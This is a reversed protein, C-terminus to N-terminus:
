SRLLESQQRVCQALQGVHRSNEPERVHALLIGADGVDRELDAREFGGFATRTVCRIADARDIFARREGSMRFNVQAM